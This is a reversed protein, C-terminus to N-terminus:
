IQVSNRRGCRALSCHLRGSTCHLRGQMCNRRGRNVGSCHLKEQICHVRVHAGNPAGLSRLPRDIVRPGARRAALRTRSRTEAWKTAPASDNIGNRGGKLRGFGRLHGRKIVNTAAIMVGVSQPPGADGRFTPYM